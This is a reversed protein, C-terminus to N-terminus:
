LYGFLEYMVNKCKLTEFRVRGRDFWQRLNKIFPSNKASQFLLLNPKHDVTSFSFQTKCGPDVKHTIYYCGHEESVTVGYSNGMYHVTFVYNLKGGLHEVFDYNDQLFQNNILYDGYATGDILQGFPTRKKEEIFGEDAWMEICIQPFRTFRSKRQPKINFYDFYPNNITVANSIFVVPVTRKRAITEYLGLFKTVENTLYHGAGKEIIFEDFVILSVYPYEVSKRKYATSLSMVYGAVQGDILISDGVIAFQVNTFYGERQLANFMKDKIADIDTDFRRVWVFQGKGKLFRNVCTRLLDFTKGAGRNGVLFNFLRNFSLLRACSYWNM